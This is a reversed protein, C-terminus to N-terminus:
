SRSGSVQARFTSAQEDALVIGRDSDAADMLRNLLARDLEEPTSSDFEFRLAAAPTLWSTSRSPPENADHNLTLAVAQQHRFRASVVIALHELLEDDVDVSDHMNSYLTGV